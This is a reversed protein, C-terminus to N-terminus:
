DLAIGSLDLHLDLYSSLYICGTEVLLAVFTQGLEPSLSFFLFSLSFIDNLLSNCVDESKGVMVMRVPIPLAKLLHSLKIFLVCMAVCIAEFVSRVIAVKKLASM